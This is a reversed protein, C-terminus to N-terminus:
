LAGEGATAADPSVPQKKRLEAVALDDYLNVLALQSRVHYGDIERWHQQLLKVALQSLKKDYDNIKGALERQMASFEKQLAAVKRLQTKYLDGGQHLGGQVSVFNEKLKNLADDLDRLALLQLAKQDDSAEAASKALANRESVLQNLQQPRVKALAEAADRKAQRARSELAASFIEMRQAGDQLSQLLGHMQLLEKAFPFFDPKDMLYHVFAIKPTNTLLDTALYWEVEGNQLPAQLLLDLVGKANIETVVEDVQRKEKEYVAIAELYADIATARLKEQEYGYAIAQFTEAVGSSTLAFKKARHWSQIATRYRGLGAFAMGYDYIAAPAGPGSAHVNKLFSLAKNYDKDLLAIHGAALLVRDSLERGEYSDDAMATAVRLAVLARSSDPDDAAYNVGLNYYGHAAWLSGQSAEGLVKAADQPRRLQLYSNAMYYLAEDKRDRAMGKMAGAFLEVAEGWEGDRYALRGKIMQAQQKVEPERATFQLHELLSEANRRMGFELGSEIALIHNLNHYQNGVHNSGLHENELLVLSQLFDNTYYHFLAERHLLEDATEQARVAGALMCLCHLILLLVSMRNMTPTVDGKM